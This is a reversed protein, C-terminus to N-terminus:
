ILRFDPVGTSYSQMLIKCLAELLLFVDNVFSMGFKVSTCYAIFIKTKITCNAVGSFLLAEM